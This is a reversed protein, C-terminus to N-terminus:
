GRRVLDLAEEQSMDRYSPTELLDPDVEPGRPMESKVEEWTPPRSLIAITPPELHYPTGVPFQQLYLYVDCINKHTYMYIYIYVYIINHIDLRYITDVIEKM